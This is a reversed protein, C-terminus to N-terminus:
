EPLPLEGAQYAKDGAKTSAFEVRWGEHEPYWSAHDRLVADVQEAGLKERRAEAGAPGTECRFLSIWRRRLLSRLAADAAEYREVLGARPYVADIEGLAVSLPCYEEIGRALILGEAVVSDIMM